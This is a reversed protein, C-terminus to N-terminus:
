SLIKMILIFYQMLARAGNFFATWPIASCEADCCIEHSNTGILSSQVM